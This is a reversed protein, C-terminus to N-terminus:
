KKSAIKLRLWIFRPILRWFFVLLRYKWDVTIVSKRRELGDVIEKAVKNVDLQMPYNGGDTLLPTRVFGPRIDTLCLHRVGQIHLLQRLCDMYHNIYRKTASYAPAAGLPRTGAISSIVAIHGQREPHQLFYHYAATVMRTFGLANTEVTRLEKEIDLSPNQYGIGSSHFYLDIDGGMKGILTHLQDAADPHTIDIRQTAIVNLNTRQLEILQEQRRCAIGVEWGRRTLELMVAQGIGSTAGIIIAKKM